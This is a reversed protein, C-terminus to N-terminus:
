REEDLLGQLARALRYSDNCDFAVFGEPPLQDAIQELRDETYHAHALTVYAAEAVGLISEDLSPLLALDSCISLIEPAQWLGQPRWVFQTQEPRPADEFFAAIRARNERTPTFSRPTDFVLAAVGLNECASLTKVFADAVAQSASFHGIEAAEPVLGAPLGRYSPSDKPHTILQWARM